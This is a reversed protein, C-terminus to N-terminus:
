NAIQRQSWYEVREAMLHDIALWEKRMRRLIALRRARRRAFSSLLLVCGPITWLCTITADSDGAFSPYGIFFGVFVLLLIFGFLYFIPLTIARLFLGVGRKFRRSGDDLRLDERLWNAHKFLRSRHGVYAAFSAYGWVGLVELCTLLIESRTLLPFYGGYQGFQSMQTFDVISNIGARAMFHFMPVLLILSFANIPRAWSAILGHPRLAVEALRLAFLRRAGIVALWADTFVQPSHPHALTFVSLKGSPLSLTRYMQPSKPRFAWFIRQFMLALLALLFFNEHNFVLSLPSAEANYALPDRPTAADAATADKVVARWFLGWGILMLLWCLENARRAWKTSRRAGNLVALL